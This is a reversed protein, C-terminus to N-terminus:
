RGNGRNWIGAPDSTGIRVRPEKRHSAKSRWARPSPAAPALRLAAQVPTVPVLAIPANCAPRPASAAAPTMVRSVLAHAAALEADSWLRFGKM